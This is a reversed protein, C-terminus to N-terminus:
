NAKWSLPKTKSCRSLLGVKLLYNQREYVFPMSILQSDPLQFDQMLGERWRFVSEVVSVSLLRLHAIIECCNEM